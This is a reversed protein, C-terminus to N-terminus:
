LFFPSKSSPKFTKLNTILCPQLCCCAFQISTHIAHYQTTTQRVDASRITNRIILWFHIRKRLDSNIVRTATPTSALTACDVAMRGILPYRSANSFMSVIISSILSLFWHIEEMAADSSVKPIYNKCILDILFERVTRFRISWRVSNKVSKNMENAPQVQSFDVVNWSQWKGITLLKVPERM